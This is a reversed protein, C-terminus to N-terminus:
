SYLGQTNHFNKLKSLEIANIDMFQRRYPYLQKPM